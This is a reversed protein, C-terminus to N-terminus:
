VHRDVLELAQRTEGLVDLADAKAMDVLYSVQEKSAGQVSEILEALEITLPSPQHGDRTEGLLKEVREISDALDENYNAVLKEVLALLQDFGEAVAPFLSQQGDFYRESISEIAGRLSYVEPIFGLAMEKWHEVRQRFRDENEGPKGPQLSELLSGRQSVEKALEGADRCVRYQYGDLYCDLKGVKVEALAAMGEGGQGEVWQNWTTVAVGTSMGSRLDGKCRRGRWKLYDAFSLYPLGEIEMTRGTFGSLHRRTQAWLKGTVASDVDSGDQPDIIRDWAFPHNDDSEELVYGKAKIRAGWEALEVSYRDIWDGEILPAESLFQHPVTPLEVVFGEQTASKMVCEIAEYHADYEADPVDALGYSYDEGDLFRQFSGADEFLEEVEEETPVEMYVAKADSQMLYAGDPLPTKGKAVYSERVWEGINDGEELVEWTLVHHRKAADIAAATEPDLPYPMQMEARIQNWRMQHDLDQERLLSGLMNTLLMGQSWYHREESVLRGNVRQHLCFLFLVDRHAQRVARDIEERPKGKLTQKVGEAVQATLKDIPRASDPQGKLHRVYEVVGNFAHAERLWLLVAQKPTLNTELKEVRRKTSV